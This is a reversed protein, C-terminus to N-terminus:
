RRVMQLSELAPVEMGLKSEAEAEVRTYAALSSKELLFMGSEVQLAGAERRLEELQQTAQRTEFTSYVVGMASALAAVWLGGCVVSLGMKRTPKSNSNTQPNRAM